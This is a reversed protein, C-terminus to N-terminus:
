TSLAPAMLWFGSIALLMRVPPKLLL